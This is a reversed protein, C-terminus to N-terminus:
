CVPATVPCQASNVRLLDVHRRLVRLQSYQSYQARM